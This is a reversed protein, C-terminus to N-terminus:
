AQVCERGDERKVPKQEREGHLSIRRAVLLKGLCLFFIGKSRLSKVCFVFFSFALDVFCGSACVWWREELLPQTGEGRVTAAAAAEERAKSAGGGSGRGRESEKEKEQGKWVRWTLTNDPRLYDAFASFLAPDIQVFVFAVRATLPLRSVLSFFSTPLRSCIWPVRGEDDSGRATSPEFCDADYVRRLSAASSLLILFSISTLFPGSGDTGKSHTKAM